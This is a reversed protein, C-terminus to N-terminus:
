KRIRVRVHQYSPIVFTFKIYFKVYKSIIIYTEFSKNLRNTQQSWSLLEILVAMGLHDKFFWDSFRTFYARFYIQRLTQMLISSRTETVEIVHGSTNEQSTQSINLTPSGTVKWILLKIQKLISSFLKKNWRLLEQNELYKFKQRSKKTM